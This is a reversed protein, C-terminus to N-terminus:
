RVITISGTKVRDEKSDVSLSIVYYYTSAPLAKGNRTGDWRKSAPYGITNFVRQGFRNFVKVNVKPFNDILDIQWTDNIGDGNPTFTNPVFISDLVNVIVEAYFKCGETSTVTLYYTTARLPRAIPNAINPNSLSEAPSWSYTVSGTASGQLQASGGFFINTYPGASASILPHVSITLDNTSLTNTKCDCELEATVIAGDTFYNKTFSSSGSSSGIYAGGSYWNVVPNTCNTITPTFVVNDESCIPTTGKNNAISITSASTAMATGSIGIDFSCESGQESSIQIYYTTSALLGIASLSFGNSNSVCSSIKTYSSSNCATAASYILGSLGTSTGNCSVNSINVSVDGVSTTTFQYWVTRDMTFCTSGTIAAGDACTACIENTAGATTGQKAKGLCVAIAGSCNDNSPQGFSLCYFVTFLLVLFIKKM